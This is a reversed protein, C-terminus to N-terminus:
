GRVGAEAALAAPAVERYFESISSLRYGKSRIDGVFRALSHFSDTRSWGWKYSHLVKRVRPIPSTTLSASWVLDTMHMNYVLLRPYRCVRRFIAEGPRKLLSRYAHTLPIRIPRWTALPFEVLRGGIVFYDGTQFGKDGNGGYGIGPLISSDWKFGDAILAKALVATLRCSHARYGEPPRGVFRAYAEVSRELDDADDGLKTHDYCHLQVDMGAELLSECVARRNDFFQGEVFATVPLQLDKAVRIFDGLRALAEYRRSSYDSEVDISVLTTPAEISYRRTEFDHARLLRAGSM